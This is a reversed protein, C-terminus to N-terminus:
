HKYRTLSLTIVWMSARVAICLLMVPIFISNRNASAFLCSHDRSFLQVNKERIDFIKKKLKKRIIKFFIRPFMYM